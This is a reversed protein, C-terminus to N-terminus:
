WKKNEMEVTEMAGLKDGNFLVFNISYTAPMSIMTHTLQMGAHHYTCFEM